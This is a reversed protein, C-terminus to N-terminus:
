LAQLFCILLGNQFVEVLVGRGRGGGDFVWGHCRSDCWRDGGCGDLHCRRHCSWGNRNCWAHSGQRSSQRVSLIHEGSCRGKPPSCRGRPELPEKCQGLRGFIPLVPREAFEEVRLIKSTTTNMTQSGRATCMSIPCEKWM